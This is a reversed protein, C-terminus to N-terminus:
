YLKGDVEFATYLKDKDSISIQRYASKMDVTNYIKYQAVKNVLEEIKPLPYTDLM